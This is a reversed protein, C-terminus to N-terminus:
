QLYVNRSEDIRLIKPFKGYMILTVSEPLPVTFRLELKCDGKRKTNFDINNDINLVCITCGAKFDSKSISVDSRFTTVTKYAEVYNNEAFNPELPKAPVSKGDVYLSIFNCDFPCFYFGNKNYAGTYAQSIVMAVILQSPIEGQFLNNESHTYQGKSM